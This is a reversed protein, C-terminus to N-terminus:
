AAAKSTLRLAVEMVFKGEPTDCPIVIIPVGTPYAVYHKGLVVNPLSISNGEGPLQQKASGAIMNAIEGLADICDPSISEEKPCGILGAALALAVSQSFSLVVSGTVNGSLGITASVMYQGTEDGRQKLSPKGLVVPVHIMTNFVNRTAIIFPNIYNVDM